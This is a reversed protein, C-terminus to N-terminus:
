DKGQATELLERRMSELKESDLFLNGFYLGDIKKLTYLDELPNDNLLIFDATKGVEITGSDEKFFNSFNITAMKLIDYHSLNANKLLEMEGVMNFGYVMYKSSSDPSLLMPIQLENLRKIIEFKEDLSKMEDVVEKTYAENGLKDRYQKTQTIWEEVTTEPIFAMGPLSRLQDYTYRGSGISYWSLTPCIFMNTEKIRQLRDELSNPYGSLGGLHEFSTYNSNFILEDPVNAPFHGAIPLEYKKSLEDFGMFTVQDKISLIKIFDFGSEKSTKVYDEIEATTFDHQRSIPPPSLYLKPYMSNENNYTNRWDLHKWDGRLSRLKTVGNILYLAMMREMDTENEPFHVHADALSPMIYKGKGDIVLLGKYNSKKSASISSIKGNKIVVDQNKLVTESTMTIVSINKIVMDQGKNEVAQSFSFLVQFSLSLIILLKKM